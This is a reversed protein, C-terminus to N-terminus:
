KQGLLFINTVQQCAGLHITGLFYFSKKGSLIKQLKIISRRRSVKNLIASNYSIELMKKQSPRVNRKKDVLQSLRHMFWGLKMPNSNFKNQVMQFTSKIITNKKLASNIESKLPERIYILYNILIDFRGGRGIKNKQSITMNRPICSFLM